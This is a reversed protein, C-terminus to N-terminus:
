GSVTLIARSMVLRPNLSLISLRSRLRHSIWVRITWSIPHRRGGASSLSCHRASMPNGGHEVRGVRSIALCRGLACVVEFAAAGGSRPHAMQPTYRKRMWAVLGASLCYQCTIARPKIMPNPSRSGMTKPSAETLCGVSALDHNGPHAADGVGVRCRVHPQGARRDLSYTRVLSHLLYTKSEAEVMCLRGLRGLAGKPRAYRFPWGHIGRGAAGCLLAAPTGSCCWWFGRPRGRVRARARRSSGSPPAQDWRTRRECCGCGM